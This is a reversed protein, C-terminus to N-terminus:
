AFPLITNLVEGLMYNYYLIVTFTCNGIPFIVNYVCITETLDIMIYILNFIHMGGGYKLMRMQDYM